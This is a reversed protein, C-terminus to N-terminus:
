APVNFWKRFEAFDLLNPVGGSNDYDFIPNALNNFYVRFEAFDLLNSIGDGNFDGFIRYLTNTTSGAVVYDGGATGNGSATALSGNFEGDLLGEPTSIQDADILLDYLGHVLSDFLTLSGSFTLTVSTPTQNAVTLTVPGTGLNITDASATSRSLTIAATVDGSFTVPSSFNVVLQEVMSRQVTGDGFIVSSVTALPQREYAGIDATGGSIRPLGRQDTGSANDLGANVAVSTSKLRHTLTPGGYNGLPDLGPDQPSGVTGTVNGSGTLTYATTDNAGIL